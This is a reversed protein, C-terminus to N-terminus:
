GPMSRAPMPRMNVRSVSPWAARISFSPSAAQGHLPSHADVTGAPRHSPTWQVVASPRQSVARSSIDIIPKADLGPISTSGVHEIVIDDLADRIAAALREYTTPWARDYPALHIKGDVRQQPRVHEVM